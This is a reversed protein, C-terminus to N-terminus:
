AAEVGLITVDFVLDRGALPHNFDVVVTDASASIVVGPLEGTSGAAAFAIMMGPVLDDASAFDARALTRINEKKRLGFGDAPAIAIREDDGARLGVIAREFGEPLNGDGVVFVAPKGRRTTDVEEGSALHISFHLTVRTGPGIPLDGERAILTSM